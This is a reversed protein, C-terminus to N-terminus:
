PRPGFGFWRKLRGKLRAGEKRGQDRNKKTHKKLENVMSDKVADIAAYLDAAQVQANFGGGAGSRVNLEAGFGEGTHHKSHDRLVIDVVTDEPMGGMYKSLKNLKKNVYNTISETTDFHETTIKINM